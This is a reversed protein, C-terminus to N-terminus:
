PPCLDLLKANVGESDWIDFFWQGAVKMAKVENVTITDMKTDMSVSVWDDGRRLQVSGWDSVLLERKKVKEGTDTVTETEKVWKGPLFVWERTWGELPPLAAEIQDLFHWVDSEHLGHRRATADDPAPHHEAHVRDVQKMADYLKTVSSGDAHIWTRYRGSMLYTPTVPNSRPVFLGRRLAPAQTPSIM